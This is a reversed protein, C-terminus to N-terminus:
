GRLGAYPTNGALAPIIGRPAPEAAVRLRTGRLRPSSGEANLFVFQLKSHEGCARPHDRAHRQRSAPLPTNGALAPIIGPAAQKNNGQRHTGRLRPSSGAERANSLADGATNGALAPIIGLERRDGVRATQTGRLRPSSGQQDASLRAPRRHEGCARPHDRTSSSWSHAVPTNGALAPIIGVILVVWELLGLTGRLRPSSGPRRM